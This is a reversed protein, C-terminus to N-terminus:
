ALAVVVAALPDIDPTTFPAKQTNLTGGYDPVTTDALKTIGAPAVYETVTSEAAM